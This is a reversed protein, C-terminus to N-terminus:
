ETYPKVKVTALFKKKIEKPSGIYYVKGSGIGSASLREAVNVIISGTGTVSCSADDTILRSAEIHGTGTISLKANPAKGTVTITGNGSIIACDVNTASISDAILKGNGVLRITIKGQPAPSIVSLLSDGENSVKTLYTSYVRITPLNLIPTDRHALQISLKGKKPEFIVASAVEKTAEFEVIGARSADCRYEVNIGDVVELETFDSLQLSYTHPDESAAIGVAM